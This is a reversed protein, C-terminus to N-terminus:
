RIKTWRTGATSAPSSWMSSHWWRTRTTSGATLCSTARPEADQAKAIEEWQRQLRDLPLGGAYSATPSHDTIIDRMGMARAARAIEEVTNGGDSYVTHCHVMGQVDAERVLDEPFSGTIAAKIEGVDERMEPPIFSLELHGYIDAERKVVLRRDKGRSLGRRDLVLGLTRAREGLRARHPQAGTLDHLLAPFAALPATEAEVLLGGALRFSAGTDTRSLPSLAPPYRMVYDCQRIGALIKEETKAGFGKVRRVRGTEYAARLDAV